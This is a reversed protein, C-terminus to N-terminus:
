SRTPSSDTADDRSAAGDARRSKFAGWAFRGAVFLAVFWAVFALGGNPAHNEGVIVLDGPDDAEYAVEVQEGERLDTKAEVSTRVEWGVADGDLILVTIQAFDDDRYVNEVRATSRSGSELLRAREASDNRDQVFTLLTLTVAALVLVGLITVRERPRLPRNPWREPPGAEVVEGVAGITGNSRAPQHRGPAPPLEWRERATMWAWEHLAASTGVRSRRKLVTISSRDVPALAAYKEDDSVSLYAWTRQDVPPWRRRAYYDVLWSGIPEGTAPDLVLIVSVGEDAPAGKMRIVEVLEWGTGQLARRARTRNRRRLPHTALVLLLAIGSLFLLWEFLRTSPALVDFSDAAASGAISMLFVGFTWVLPRRARRGVARLSASTAEDELTSVSGTLPPQHAPLPSALLPRREDWGAAGADRRENVRALWSKVADTQRM